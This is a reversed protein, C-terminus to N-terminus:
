LSEDPVAEIDQDEIWRQADGMPMSPIAIAAQSRARLLQNGKSREFIAPLLPDNLRIGSVSYHWSDPLWDEFPREGHRGIGPDVGRPHGHGCDPCQWRYAQSSKVEAINMRRKEVWGPVYATAPVIGGDTDVHVAGAPILEELLRVRVRSAIIASLFVTNELANNTPRSIDLINKRKGQNDEFTIELRRYKGPNRAFLSWLRTTLHKAALGSVGPLKRLEMAWPLWDAFPERIPYGKWVRLLRADVGHNEIANRLESIVFYGRAEGHAYVQIDIGRKGRALRFPLPNWAQNPIRVIAECIGEDYLTLEARESLQVPLPDCMGQLYAAPLDLYKVGSYIAPLPQLSEKRGGLFAARGVKPSGGWELFNYRRRLMRKWSNNAMTSLSAPGIGLDRLADFFPILAQPDPGFTSFAYIPVTNRYILRQTREHYQVVKWNQAGNFLILQSPKVLSYIVTKNKLNELIRSGQEVTYRNSGGKEDCIELMSANADVIFVFPKPPLKPTWPDFRM